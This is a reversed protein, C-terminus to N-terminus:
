RGSIYRGTHRPIPRGSMGNRRGLVPYPTGLVQDAKGLAPFCSGSAGSLRGFVPCLLGVGAASYKSHLGRIVLLGPHVKRQLPKAGIAKRIDCGDGFKTM